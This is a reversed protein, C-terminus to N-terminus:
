QEVCLRTGLIKGPVGGIITNEPVDKIVVSGAAIVANDGISCPKVFLSNAGIFV